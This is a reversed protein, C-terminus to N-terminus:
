KLAKSRQQSDREKEIDRANESPTLFPDYLRELLEQVIQIKQGMRYWQLDISKYRPRRDYSREYPPAEKPINITGFNGIKKPNKQLERFSQDMVALLAWAIRRGAKQKVHRNVSFTDAPQNGEIRHYKITATKGWTRHPSSLISNIYYITLLIIWTKILLKGQWTTVKYLVAFM